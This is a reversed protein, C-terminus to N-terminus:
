CTNYIVNEADSAKQRSIFVVTQRVYDHASCKTM